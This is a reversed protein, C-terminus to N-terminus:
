SRDDEIEKRVKRVRLGARELLDARTLRDGEDKSEMCVYVVAELAERPSNTNLQRLELLLTRIFPEDESNLEKLVKPWNAHNEKLTVAELFLKAVSNKEQYSESKRKSRPPPLVRPKRRNKQALMYGALLCGLLLLVALFQIWAKM